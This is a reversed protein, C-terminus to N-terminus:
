GQAVRRDLFSLTVLATFSLASLLLGLEILPPRYRFEVVHRGGDWPVSLFAMPNDSVTTETGDIFARWGRDNAFAVVLRALRASEAEVRIRGDSMEVVEVRGEVLAGDPSEFRVRPWPEPVRYVRVVDEFFRREEGVLPFSQWLSPADMTVVFDVSGRQLRDLLLRSDHLTVFDQITRKLPGRYFDLIDLDFSGLYGFRSAVPPNLYWTAALVLSEGAEYGAPVQRLRYPTGAPPRTTVPRAMSAGGANSAPKPLGISYDSVYLRSEFPILATLPPRDRFLSAATTPNLHTQNGLLDLGVLLPALPARLPTGAFAIALALALTAALATLVPRPMALGGTAWAYIAVSTVMLGAVGLAMWRGAALSPRTRLAPANGALIALGLSAAALHKTPFRLGSVFPLRGVMEQLDESRIGWSLLLGTVIAGLCFWRDRVRASSVGLGAFLWVSFGLYHSFMWVPRGGFFTEGADQTLPWGEARVPLVTEITLAPHLPAIAWGSPYANRAADRAFSLSPLTQVASMLVGLGLCFVLRLRTPAPVDNRTALRLACLLFTTLTYDPSGALIQLTVLSALKLWPTKQGPEADCQEIIWPMWAAGALHHWHSVLSLLPGSAGYALGATMQGALSLDPAMRRALRGAGFAAVVLHFACFLAYSKAPPLVWHVWAPPYLVEARPDAFLPQGFARRSDFFPLEGKAIQRVVSEVQPLWVSSIDRSFLARDSLFVRPFSLFPILCFALLLLRANRKGM